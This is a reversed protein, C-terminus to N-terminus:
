LNIHNLILFSVNKGRFTNLHLFAIPNNDLWILELKKGDVFTDPKIEQVNQNIAEFRILNPFKTFIERPVSHISSSTFDVREITNVDLNSPDTAISVKDNQGITVGSFRCGQLGEIIEKKCTITKQALINVFLLFLIGSLIVIKM